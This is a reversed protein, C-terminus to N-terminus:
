APHSFCDQRHQRSATSSHLALVLVVQASGSEEQKDPGRVRERPPAEHPPLGILPVEPIALHVAAPDGERGDVACRFRAKPASHQTSRPRDCTALVGTQSCPLLPSTRASLHRSVRLPPHNLSPRLLSLSLALSASPAIPIGSRFRRSAQRNRTGGQRGSTKRRCPSAVNATVTCYDHANARSERHGAASLGTQGSGSHQLGGYGPGSTVPALRGSKCNCLTSAAAPRGTQWDALRDRRPSASPSVRTRRRAPVRASPCAEEPM